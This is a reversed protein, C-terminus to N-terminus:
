CSGDRTISQSLVDLIDLIPLDGEGLTRFIGAAVAELFGLEGSNM